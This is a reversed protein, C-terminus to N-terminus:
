KRGIGYERTGDGDTVGPRKAWRKRLKDISQDQTKWLSGYADTHKEESEGRKQSKRDTELLKERRHIYVTSRLM